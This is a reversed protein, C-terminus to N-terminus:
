FKNLYAEMVADYESFKDEMTLEKKERDTLAKAKRQKAAKTMSAKIQKEAAMPNALVENFFSGCQSVARSLRVPDAVLSPAAPVKWRPVECCIIAMLGLCDRRLNAAMRMEGGRWLRYLESFEENMRILNKSGLEKYIEYLVSALFHGAETKARGSATAGGREKTSMGSGKTEKRIRTDEEMTWRIWFLAREQAGDQVAKCLENSVLYLPPTDAESNWVVRTVRTEPSGAVGRLWGPRKTNADIKPWVLKARKPCLQLVLVCEAINSQVEPHSYFSEQPLAAARKDLELIRQRMYVFIRPNALGIHQVAYSYAGRIWIDLGGSCVIDAAFHLAKGSAATGVEGLAKEYCSYAEHVLYGSRTKPRKDEQQPVMSIHETHIPARFVDM